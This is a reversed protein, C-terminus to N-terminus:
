EDYGLEKLFQDLVLKETNREVELQKLTVSYKTYLNEISAIFSQLYQKLYANYTRYLTQEWRNLILNKAQEPEIQQRAQEVLETKREELAKTEKKLQKLEEVFKDHQQVQQNLEQNHKNAKLQAKLEKHLAKPLIGNESNEYDFDEEEAEDFLAQLELMRNQDLEHQALLEPYQAQLIEDDPILSASFGSAAVSKLDSLIVDNNWFNALAGRIKFLDLINLSSLEQSNSAQLTAYLEFVM